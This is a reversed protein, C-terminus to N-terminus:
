AWDRGHNAGGCSCDCSAGRAGTCRADCVHEPNLRGKLIGPQMLGGCKSCLGSEIDGGYETPKGGGIATIWIGPYARKGQSDIRYYRAPEWETKMNYEVRKAIKCKKCNYIYTVPKM